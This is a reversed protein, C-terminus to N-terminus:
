ALAAVMAHYALKPQLSEDFPLAAGFGPLFSPIWSYRDTFGWTTIGRCRRTNRCARVVDGYIVAQNALKAVDVPLLIAVDMETIWVQFGAASIRALNAEIDASSEPVIEIRHMQIGIGNIPVGLARLLAALALALDSKPNVTETLYDNLYLRAGPDAEHAFRFAMAIYDPGIGRLWLNDRLGLGDDAIVENVVDWQKVRNRYHGVVTAIHDHLIQILEDRTFAGNTLWQPNQSHWVLTHGRVMMHHAQAFAVIKDGGTFDYRNREPHIADWKMANEPTVSSYDRGAAALYEPDTDFQSTGMATGVELHHKQALRRLTPASTAAGTTTGITSISVVLAVCVSAAGLRLARGM